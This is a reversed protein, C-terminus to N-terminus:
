HNTHKVNKNEKQKKTEEKEQMQERLAIEVENLNTELDRVAECILSATKGKIVSQSFLADVIGTLYRRQTDFHRRADEFDSNLWPVRFPSPSVMYKEKNM